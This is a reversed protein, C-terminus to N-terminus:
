ADLEATFEDITTNVWNRAYFLEDKLTGFYGLRRRVPKGAYNVSKNSTSKLM